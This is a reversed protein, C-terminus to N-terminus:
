AFLSYHMNLIRDVFLSDFAALLSLPQQNALKDSVRKKDQVKFVERPKLKHRWMVLVPIQVRNGKRLKALFKEEFELPRGQTERELREM